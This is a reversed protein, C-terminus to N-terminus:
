GRVQLNGITLPRTPDTWETTCDLYTFRLSAIEDPPSKEGEGNMHAARAAIGSM